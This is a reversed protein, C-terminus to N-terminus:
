CRSEASRGVRADESREPNLRSYNCWRDLPNTQRISGDGMVWRPWPMHGMSLSFKAFFPDGNKPEVLVLKDEDPFQHRTSCLLIFPGVVRDVPAASPPPDTTVFNDTGGPLREPNTETPCSNEFASLIFDKALNRAKEFGDSVPCLVMKEVGFRPWPNKIKYCDSNTHTYFEIFIPNM